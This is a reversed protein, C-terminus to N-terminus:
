DPHGQNHDSNEVRDWHYIALKDQYKWKGTEPQDRLGFVNNM